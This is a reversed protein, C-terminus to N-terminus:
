LLGLEKFSSYGNETIIIHDVFEIGIIKSVEKIQKTFAIDETSPSSSGSPHNHVIIIGAANWKVAERFIDRSHTIACNLTGKFLAIRNKVQNQTDVILLHSEEQMFTTMDSCLITVDQPCTIKVINRNSSKLRVGWLEISAKIAEARVKGMGKVKCLEEISANALTELTGFTDMIRDALEKDRVLHALLETNSLSRIGDMYIRNGERIQWEKFTSM